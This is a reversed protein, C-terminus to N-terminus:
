RSATSFSWTRDIGVVDGSPFAVATGKFAVRYSTSIGLPALPVIAAFSPPIMSNPDNQNTLMTTSVDAGTLVNTMTFSTVQITQLRDVTISAPSGLTMVEQRPVPNPIEFGLHTPVGMSQDLPWIAVGNSRSQAAQGVARVTDTGPRTIDIVLPRKVYAGANSSWGIGVDVPEFALLGARHYVGNVLEDVGAAPDVGSSMAESGGVPVYGLTEDRNWWDAGTFGPTGSTETHVFADNAIMWDAHAQAAQDLLANQAVMGLGASLRIENLRNFAALREADYGVPTPVTMQAAIPASPTPAPTPAPAPPPPAPADGGGGGCASLSALLATTSALCSVAALMRARAAARRASAPVPFSSM